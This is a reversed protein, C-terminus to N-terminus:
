CPFDWAPLLGWGAADGLAPTQHSVPCRTGPHTLRAGPQAGPQTRVERRPELLAPHSAHCRTGPESLSGASRPTSPCCASGGTGTSTPLRLCGPLLTMVVRLSDDGGRAGVRM